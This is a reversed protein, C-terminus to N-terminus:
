VLPPDANRDLRAIEVEIQAIEECAARHAASGLSAANRRRRVAEHRALLGARSATPVPKTAKPQDAM